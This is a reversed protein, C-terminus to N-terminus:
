APPPPRRRYNAPSPPESSQRPPRASAIINSLRIDRIEEQTAAGSELASDLTDALNESEPTKISKIVRIRTLGAAAPMLAALHTAARYEYNSENLLALDNLLQKIVHNTKEPFATM